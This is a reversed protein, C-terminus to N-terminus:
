RTWRKIYFSYSNPDVVGGELLVCHGVNTAWYVPCVLKGYRDRRAISVYVRGNNDELWVVEGGRLWAFLRVWLDRM